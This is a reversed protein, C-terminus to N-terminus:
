VTAEIDQPDEGELLSYSAHSQFPRQLPHALLKAMCNHLEIAPGSLSVEFRYCMGKSDLNCFSTYNDRWSSEDGQEEVGNHLYVVDFFFYPSQLMKTFAESPNFQLQGTHRSYILVTRVVYPPPITQVNDMSPLEIKQRIVNLLDELNFSECVNTELDYLCSCLERPDSTFGSLWLADDNVVVLAFEHRKDIKHKTRVFMEIMKQSINLANTKTGNFSELKPLSMEESLDLCIIVKEPCNVRPVKLQYEAPPPIPTTLTPQQQTPKPREKAAVAATSLPVTATAAATAAAATAATAAAAAAAASAAAAAVAVPAPTQAAATSVTTTTSSPPIDITSAEGEGEVRSGVAPQSINPNSNGGLSGTSSRRDEAGEPNSRTRPRLEVVHEEGDAPGPEPTEMSTASIILDPVPFHLHM